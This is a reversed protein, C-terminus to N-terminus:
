HRSWAQAMPSRGQTLGPGSLARAAWGAQSRFPGNPAPAETLTSSERSLRIVPSLISMEPAPLAIAHIAREHRSGAAQQRNPRADNSWSGLSPASEGVDSSGPLLLPPVSRASGRSDVLQRWMRWLLRRERALRQVQLARSVSMVASGSGLVRVVRRFEECAIRPQLPEAGAPGFANPPRRSRYPWTPPGYERGRESAPNPVVTCQLGRDRCGRLRRRHEYTGLYRASLWSRSAGTGPTAPQSSPVEFAARQCTPNM